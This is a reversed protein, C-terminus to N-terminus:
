NTPNIIWGGSILKVIEQKRLPNLYKYATNTSCNLKKAIDYIKMPIDSLINVFMEPTFVNDAHLKLKIETPPYEINIWQAPRDYIRKIKGESELRNLYVMTTPRIINLTTSIQKTTLVKNMLLQLIMDNDYRRVGGVEGSHSVKGIDELLWLSYRFAEYCNPCLVLWSDPHSKMTGHIHYLHLIDNIESYGCKICKDKQILDQNREEESPMRILLKTQIIEKKIVKKKKPPEVIGIDSLKWSNKGSRHLSWHCNACLPILNSPNNNSRDHDLHHVHIISKNEDYGCRICKEIPIADRYAVQPQQKEIIINYYKSTIDQLIANRGIQRISGEELLKSELIKDLELCKEKGDVMPIKYYDCLIIRMMHTRNYTKASMADEFQKNLTGFKTLIYNRKRRM